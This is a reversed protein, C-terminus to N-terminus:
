GFRFDNTIYSEPRARRRSSLTLTNNNEPLNIIQRPVNQTPVPEECTSMMLSYLIFKEIFFTDVPLGIALDYEM